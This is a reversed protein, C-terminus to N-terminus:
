IGLVILLAAAAAAAAVRVSLVLVAVICCDGNRFAGGLQSAGVADVHQTLCSAHM